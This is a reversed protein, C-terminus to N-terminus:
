TVTQREVIGGKLTHNKEWDLKGFLACILQVNNQPNTLITIWWKIRQVRLDVEATTACWRQRVQQNTLSRIKGDATKWSSKGRMMKRLYVAAQRDIARLDAPRLVFATLGSYAASM